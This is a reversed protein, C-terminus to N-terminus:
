TSSQQKKGYRREAVAAAREKATGQGAATRSGQGLNGLGGAGGASATGAALYPKDKLLQELRATIAKEDVEGDDGVKLGTLDLLALADTPSAFKTGALAKVEAKLIRTDAKSREDSRAAAEAEKRATAVAKEQETQGAAKLADLEEKAKVLDAHDAFKARERTLRDAIVQDLQAQTFTKPPEGGTGGQGGEGQGTGAGGAGAGAGAGGEGQGTSMTCRSLVDYPVRALLTPLLPGPKLPRTQDTFM